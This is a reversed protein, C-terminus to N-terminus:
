HPLLCGSINLDIESFQNLCSYVWYTQQGYSYGRYANVNGTSDVECPNNMTCKHGGDNGTNNVGIVTRSGALIIPSGSTGGITNCGPRSFRISDEMTWQDEKLQTVFSEINCSYGRNWYGSIVEVSVSLAPHQSSLILPNVNYKTKIESYTEKLKYITMDTRTMTSYVIQTATLHGAVMRNNADYLRFTRSSNRGYVVEGAKPMGNELCHGNTLILASDNELSNELKILAGSCNNLAVIGEFNYASTFNQPLPQSKRASSYTVPLSLAHVQATFLFILIFFKFM